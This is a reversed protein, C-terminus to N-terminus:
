FSVSQHIPYVVNNIEIYLEYTGSLGEANIFQTIMLQNEDTLADPNFLDICMASYPTTTIRVSYVRQDGLRNLILKVKIGKM